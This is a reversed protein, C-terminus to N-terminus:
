FGFRVEGIITRKILDGFVHQQTARNLLNTVRVAITMAGDISRIGAGANVVTYPETWGHFRADLVDQWFADDQYSVSMSGFYRGRNLSAGLNVHHTPAINLESQSFGEAESDAQWTYNIFGSVSGTIRADLSLEIGRDKIRDFNRYSYRYPLPLQLGDLDALQGPWLPPPNASTYSEIQTFLVMNRTYNVYTAAGLTISGLQGIYAAEYATLGEEKLDLNGDAFSPFTFPVEHVVTRSLFQTQLFSNFFSPARFARNFSLRVTHNPQPRFIFATRPSLVTKDVATFRDVRTGVILQARDTLLIRDQAYAGGERRSSGLPALSLDFHNSRFNGGYSLLHRSGLDNANSFEVDYTQNEFTPDLLRGDTGQLLLMPGEADLANVFAQLKLRDRHYTVRGYKFTSGGQIDLPGLGSHIIGETGTIGGAVVYDARADLRPQTTGRNQFSPYSTSTGPVNGVPRLLAEQALLGASIKFAFRESPAEAHTASVSFLGGGDFGEGRRTRDFHGFEISATTGAMKGTTSAMERPTKTIVNVVGTLANAGWVASAPGRIVEIQKIQSPDVPIFDWMVFGFFDQYISRGDLLVLTSDELTGTPARTTINIDRASTKTINVGPVLRMLDTVNQAPANEIADEGIVTMTAPANILAEPCSRTASIVIADPSPTKAPDPEPDASEKQRCLDVTTQAVAVAPLCCSVLAVFLLRTLM